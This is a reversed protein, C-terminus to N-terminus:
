EEQKCHSAHIKVSVAPRQTQLLEQGYKDEWFLCQFIVLEVVQHLPEGGDGSTLHTELISKNKVKEKAQPLIPFIGWQFLSVREPCLRGGLAAPGEHHGSGAARLAVFGCKDGKLWNWQRSQSRLM